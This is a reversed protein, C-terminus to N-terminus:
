DAVDGNTAVGDDISAAAGWKATLARTLMHATESPRRGDLNNEAFGSWIRKGDDLIYITVRVSPQDTRKEPKPGLAIAPRVGTEPRATRFEAPDRTGGHEPELRLRSQPFGEEEGFNKLSASYSIRLGTEDEASVSAGSASLFSAIEHRVSEELESEYYDPMFFHADSPLPGSSFARLWSVHAVDADVAETAPKMPVDNAIDNAVDSQGGDCQAYASAAFGAAFLAPTVVVACFFLAKRSVFQVLTMAKGTEEDGSLSEPGLSSSISPPGEGQESACPGIRSRGQAPIVRILNMPNMETGYAM